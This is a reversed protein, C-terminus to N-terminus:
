NIMGDKKCPHYKNILRYNLGCILAFAFIIANVIISMAGYRIDNNLM